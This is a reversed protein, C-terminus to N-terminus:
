YSKAIKKVRDRDEIYGKLLEVMAESSSMRPNYGLLRRSKEISFSYDGQLYMLQEAPMDIVNLRVALNIFPWCLWPPVLRIRHTNGAADMLAQIIELSTSPERCSINFVEGVAEEKEGCLLFADVVDQVWVFDGRYQPGGIWLVPRNALLWDFARLLDIRVYYGRGCITPLRMMTLPLGHQFHYRWCLEEAAKKHRGYWGFPRDTPADEPCRFPPFPSYLEITSTHVFRKVGEAVSAALFNETGGFNVQWKESEPRKSFAQVFALHYVTDVGKVAKGVLEADRMDGCVFEAGAPLIGTPAVDFVRVERGMELLRKALFSGTFGAGGTVLDM